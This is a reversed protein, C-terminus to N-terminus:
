EGVAARRTADHQAHPQRSALWYCWGCAGISLATIGFTVPGGGHDLLWGGVFPGAGFGLGSLGAAGFYSGKLGPPAMRDTQLQLTPFLV